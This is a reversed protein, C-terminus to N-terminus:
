CSAINNTAIADAMAQAEANETDRLGFMVGDRDARSRNQSIKSKGILRAIPIEIGVIANLLKDIYDQPADDIKWPQPRGAEHHATLRELAAKLWAPDDVVRMKGYAHVVMYNYTPVVKGNEQKSPYWSPSIYASPGQFVVLAEVDNSFDRWVPNARAVHACLTGFEGSAPDFEFPLHNANIGDSGFTVLTGFSHSLILQHLAEVRKEEFQAPLYM